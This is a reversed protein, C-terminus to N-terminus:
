GICYSEYYVTYSYIESFFLRMSYLKLYKSYSATQFGFSPPCCLGRGVGSGAGRAGGGAVM